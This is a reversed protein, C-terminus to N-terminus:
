HAIKTTQCERVMSAKVTPFNDMPVSRITVSLWAAVVILLIAAAVLVPVGFSLALLGALVGIAAAHHMSQSDYMFQTTSHHAHM